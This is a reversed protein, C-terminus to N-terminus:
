SKASLKLNLHTGDCYPQTCTRKCGCLVALKRSELTLEV